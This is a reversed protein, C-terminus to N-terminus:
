EDRWYDVMVDWGVLTWLDEVFWTGDRKLEEVDDKDSWEDREEQEMMRLVEKASKVGEGFESDKQPFIAQKLTNQIKSRECAMLSNQVEEPLHVSGQYMRRSRPNALYASLTQKMLPMLVRAKVDRDGKAEATDPGSYLISADRIQDEIGKGWSCGAEDFSIAYMLPGARQMLLFLMGEALEAVTPSNLTHSAAFAIFTRLLEKREQFDVNQTKSKTTM